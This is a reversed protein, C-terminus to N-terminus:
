GANWMKAICRFQKYFSFEVSFIGVPGGVLVRVGFVLKTTESSFGPHRNGAQDHVALTFSEVTKCTYM